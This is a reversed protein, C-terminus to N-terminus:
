AVRYSAMLEIIQKNQADNASKELLKYLVPLAAHQNALTTRLTEVATKKVLLESIDQPLADTLHVNSLTTNLSTYADKFANIIDQKVSPQVSPEQLAATLQEMSKSHQTYAPINGSIDAKLSTIMTTISVRLTENLAALLTQLQTFIPQAIIHTAITEQYTNMYSIVEPKSAFDSSQPLSLIIKYAADLRNKQTTLTQDIDTAKKLEVIFEQYNAADKIYSSYSDSFLSAGAIYHIFEQLKLSLESYQKKMQELIIANAGKIFVDSHEKLTKIKDYLLILDDSIAQQIAVPNQQSVYSETYKNLFGQISVLTDTYSQEVTSQYLSRTNDHIFPKVHNWSFSPYGKEQLIKEIGIVESSIDIVYKLYPITYQIYLSLFDKSSKDLTSIIDPIQKTKMAELSTYMDNTTKYLVRLKDLAGRLAGITKLTPLSENISLTTKMSIALEIYIDQLTNEVERMDKNSIVQLQSSLNERMAEAKRVFETVSETIKKIEQEMINVEKLESFLTEISQITPSLSAFMGEIKVVQLRTTRNVLKYDDDTKALPYSKIISDFTSKEEDLSSLANQLSVIDQALQKSQDASLFNQFITEKQSYDKILDNIDKFFSTCRNILITGETELDERFQKTVINILPQVVASPRTTNITNSLILAQRSKEEGPETYIAYMGQLNPTGPVQILSGSSDLIPYGHDNCFVYTSQIQVAYPSRFIDNQSYIPTFRTYGSYPPRMIATGSIDYVAKGNIEVQPIPLIKMYGYIDYLPTGKETVLLPMQSASDISVYTASAVPIPRDKLSYFGYYYDSEEGTYFFVTMASPSILYSFYGDVVPVKVILPSEEQNNHVIFYDGSKLAGHPLIIGPSYLAPSSCSLISNKYTRPVVGNDLGVSHIVPMIEPSLYELQTETFPPLVTFFGTLADGYIKSLIPIAYEETLLGGSADTQLYPIGTYLTDTDIVARIYKTSSIPSMATSLQTFIDTMQPTHNSSMLETCYISIDGSLEDIKNFLTNTSSLIHEFYFNYANLDHVLVQRSEIIKRISKALTEQTEKYTKIKEISFTNIFQTYAPTAQNVKYYDLLDYYPKTTKSVARNYLIKISDFLGMLVDLKEITKYYLIGEASAAKENSLQISFSIPNLVNARFTDSLGQKTNTIQEQIDKIAVLTETTQLAGGTQSTKRNIIRKRKAKYSRGSM